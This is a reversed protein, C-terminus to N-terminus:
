RAPLPRDYMLPDRKRGLGISQEHRGQQGALQYDIQLHYLYPFDPTWFCPDTVFAEALPAGGSQSLKLPVTAPLTRAHECYPGTITGTFEIDTSDRPRVQIRVEVDNADIIAVEYQIPVPHPM